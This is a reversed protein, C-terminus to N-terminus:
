AQDPPIIGSRAAATLTLVVYCHSDFVGIVMDTFYVFWYRGDVPELGIREYGFAEGLFVRHRRWYFEGRKQVMRVSLGSPYEVPGLREPYPRPSYCYVDAPCRM